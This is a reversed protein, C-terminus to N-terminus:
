CNIASEVGVHIGMGRAEPCHNGASGPARCSRRLIENVVM